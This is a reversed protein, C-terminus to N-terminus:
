YRSIILSNQTINIPRRKSKYYECAVEKVAEIYQSRLDMDRHDMKINHAVVLKKLAWQRNDKKQQDRYEREEKAKIAREESSILGEAKKLLSRYKIDQDEIGSDFNWLCSLASAANHQALFNEAEILVRNNKTRITEEIQKEELKLKLNYYEMAKELADKHIKTLDSPITLLNTIAADYDGINALSEAYSFINSRNATYYQYIKEKAKELAARVGNFDASGLAQKIIKSKNTGNGSFTISNTAFISNSYRDLITIYLSGYLQYVNRMGGESVNENIIVVKPEVIFPASNDFCAYGEQSCLDILIANLYEKVGEIESNADKAFNVCVRIRGIEEPNQGYSSNSYCILVIILLIQFKSIAKM